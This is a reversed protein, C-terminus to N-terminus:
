LELGCRPRSCVTKTTLEASRIRNEGHTQSNIVRLRVPEECGRCGCVREREGEAMARGCGAFWRISSANLSRTTPSGAPSTLAALRGTVMSAKGSSWAGTFLHGDLNLPILALVKEGGRSRGYASGEKQAAKKSNRTWGGVRSHSAAKVVCLLFRTGSSSAAAISGIM